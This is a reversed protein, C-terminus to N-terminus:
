SPPGARLEIVARTGGAPGDEFHVAGGCARVAQAVVALGLGAGTRESGEDRALREYPAFVRERDVKPIGPGEDDVYLRVRLGLLAASLRIEQGAAGYKIANDILNVLAQRILDADGLVAFDADKQWVLQQGADDVALQVAEAAGMFMDSVRVASLRPPVDVAGSRAVFLVNDVLGKLRRAERVISAVLSLRAAEDRERRLSLTESALLIQALPMRLDHSVGAVFDSRAQALRAERRSTWAAALIVLITAIMLIGMTWLRDINAIALISPPLQSGRLAATITMADLAGIPHITVRARAEDALAGFLTTGDPAAVRLSGRPLPVIGRPVGAAFLTSALASADVVLGYVAAPRGQADRQVM